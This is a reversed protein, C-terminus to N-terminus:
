GWLMTQFQLVLIIMDDDHEIDYMISGLGFAFLLCLVVLAFGIVVGAIAFGIGKYKDSNGRIEKMGLFGFIISFAGSLLLFAIVVLCIEISDQHNMEAVFFVPNGYLLESIFVVIVSIIIGLVSLVFSALAKRSFTPSWEIDGSAAKELSLDWETKEM